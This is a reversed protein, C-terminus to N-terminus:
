VLVSGQYVGNYYYRVGGSTAYGSPCEAYSGRRDGAWHNIGLYAGGNSCYVVGRYTWDPGNGDCWGGAWNTGRNVYCAGIWGTIGVDSTISAEAMRSAVPANEQAQAVAAPIM